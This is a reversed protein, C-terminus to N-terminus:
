RGFFQGVDWWPRGVTRPGVKTGAVSGWPVFIPKGGQIAQGLRMPKGGLPAAVFAGQPNRYVTAGRYTGVVRPQPSDGGLQSVLAIPNAIRLATAAAPIVAAAARPALRQAFGTGAGVIPAAVVGTAYEKAVQTAAKRVDGKEVAQQFEPDFLPISGAINATTNFGAGIANAIRNKVILTKANLADEFESQLAGLNNTYRPDVRAPPNSLAAVPDKFPFIGEKSWGENIKLKGQMAAEGLDSAHIMGQMIPKQPIYSGEKVAKQYGKLLEDAYSEGRVRATNIDKPAIERINRLDTSPMFGEKPDYSGAGQFFTYEGKNFKKEAINLIRTMDEQNATIKKNVGTDFGYEKSPDFVKPDVGQQVLNTKITEFGELDPMTSYNIFASRNVAPTIEKLYSLPNGQITKSGYLKDFTASDHINQLLEGYVTAPINAYTHAADHLAFPGRELPPHIDLAYNKAFDQALELVSKQKNPM